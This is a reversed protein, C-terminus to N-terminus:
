FSKVINDFIGKLDNPCSKGEIKLANQNEASSPNGL